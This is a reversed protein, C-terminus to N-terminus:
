VVSKRDGDKLKASTYTWTSGSITASGSSAVGGGVSTGEYVTVNVAHDDGRATGVEGDLTPTSDNTPTQVSNMTVVPPTTDVTFTRPTSKGTNGTTDSQSAQATYVGDPLHSPTYSWKGGLDSSCVASSSDRPLRTHRCS